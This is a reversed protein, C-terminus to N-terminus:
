TQNLIKRQCFFKLKKGRTRKMAAPNLVGANEFGLRTKNILIGEKKVEIM